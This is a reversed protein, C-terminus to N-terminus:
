TKDRSLLRQSVYESFLSSYDVVTLSNHTDTHSHIYPDLTCMYPPNCPYLGCCSTVQGTKAKQVRNWQSASAWPWPPAVSATLPGWHNEGEGGPLASALPAGSECPTLKWHERPTQFDESAEVRLNKSDSRSFSFSSLLHAQTSALTQSVPSKDTVQQGKPM